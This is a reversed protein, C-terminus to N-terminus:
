TLPSCKRLTLQLQLYLDVSFVSAATAAAGAGMRQDTSTAKTDVVFPLQGAVGGAALLLAGVAELVVALM